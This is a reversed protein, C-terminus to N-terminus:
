IGKTILLKDALVQNRGARKARYLANDARSILGEATDHHALCTVGISVSLNLSVGEHMCPTEFIHKCIRDALRMAGNLQTHRLIIGFEEGGYRYMTDTERITQIICDATFRLAHDGALHGHTDNLNKFHDIDIMMFSLPTDHMLAYLIDGHLEHNFAHRNRAGTLGCHLSQQIAKEYELANHLPHLLLDCATEMSKTQIANIQSAYYLTCNGLHINQLIFSHTRSFQSLSNGVQFRTQDPTEFVLGLLLPAHYDLFIQLLDQIKLSTQLQQLLTFEPLTNHSQM